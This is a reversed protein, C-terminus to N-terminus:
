EAFYIMSTKKFERLSFLLRPAPLALEAALTGALALCDGHSPGHIMAYLTYPWGAFPPRRYCHSVEPSASIRAGAEELRDEPVSWVSMANAAFGASQHRLIAGFRRMIGHHRYGTLRALIEPEPANLDRALAAFPAADPGLDGCVRAILRRDLADFRDAAPPLSADPDPPPMRGPEPTPGVPFPFDVRIKFTRIAPLSHIEMVGPARGIMQLIEHLRQPAHAIVTFWLNMVDNREYNHTVEPFGSALAATQALLGPEVRAAALTSVYGLRAADFSGGIRRILGNARLRSLRAHVADPSAGLDRALETCPAPAIPFDQQIRGLILRDLPSLEPDPLM